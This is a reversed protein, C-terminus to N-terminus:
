ATTYAFTEVRRVKTVIVLALSFLVTFLTVMGLRALPNKVFYLAIVSAMPLVSLILTGIINAARVV